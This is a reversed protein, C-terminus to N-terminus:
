AASGPATVGERTLLDRTQALTFACAPTFRHSLLADSLEFGFLDWVFISRIEWNGVLRSLETRAFEPDRIEAVGGIILQGNVADFGFGLLRLRLDGAEMRGVVYAMEPEGLFWSPDVRLSGSQVSSGDYLEEYVERLFNHTLSVPTVDSLDHTQCGFMPVIGLGGGYTSVAPSREQVIVKPVGDQWFVLAVTMGISHAGMGCEAARAASSLHQDRIPTAREPRVVAAYTEDELAGCATVYQFYDSVFVQIRPGDPTSTVARACAHLDNWVDPSDIEAPDQLRAAVTRRNFVVSSHEHPPSQLLLLTEDQDVQRWEATALFPISVARSGIVIRYLDDLRGRERYYRAIWDAAFDPKRQRGVEQRRRATRRRQVRVKLPRFCLGLVFAIGAAALNVLLDQFM